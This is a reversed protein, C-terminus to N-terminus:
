SGTARDVVLMAAVELAALWVLHPIALPLRFFVTLALPAPRRADGVLHVPHQRRATSARRADTPDANPYRETVLLLYALLRRARLRARVRRRRPPGDADPRRALSAFWGLIASSRSCGAAVRRRQVARRQPQACPM